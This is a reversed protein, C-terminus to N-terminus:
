KSPVDKDGIQDLVDEIEENCLKNYDRRVPIIYTEWSKYADHFTDCIQGNVDKKLDDEHSWSTYLM